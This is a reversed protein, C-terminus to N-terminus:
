ETGAPGLGNLDQLRAASRGFAEFSGEFLRTQAELLDAPGTAKSLAELYDGYISLSRSWAQVAEEAPGEYLRAFRQFLPDLGDPRDAADTM